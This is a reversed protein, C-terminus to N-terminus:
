FLIRSCLEPLVTEVFAYLGKSKINLLVKLYSILDKIEEQHFLKGPGLFQYPINKRQFQRIFPDAHDNARVLIAFDLYKYNKKLIFDQIKESVLEAENEIKGSTVIGDPIKVQGFRGLRLGSNTALIEGYKISQDSIDLACSNMALYSPTPFYRSYLQKM